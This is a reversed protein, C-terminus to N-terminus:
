MAVTRFLVKLNDPLDSRSWEVRKDFLFGGTCYVM